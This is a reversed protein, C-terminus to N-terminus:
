ETDRPTIYDSPMAAAALENLYYELQTLGDGHIASGDEPDDSDCGNSREWHDPIGDGDSDDRPPMSALEPWGGVEAQSDIVRGSGSRVESVLRKDVADRIPLSAGAHQLVLEYAREASQTDVVRVDFPRAVLISTPDIGPDFIIGRRNELSVQPSDEVANGAMYM